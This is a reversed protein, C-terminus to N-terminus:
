ISNVFQIRRGIWRMVPVAMSNGVAKFRRADSAGPIDTYGTDFGQLRECEEVTLRRGFEGGNCLNPINALDNWCKYIGAKITSATRGRTKHCAKSDRGLSEQEFLVAAARRWDGRYGVVFVRRRTQPVGFFKADLVRYALGYGLKEMTGLITGFDEGGNSSMVSPVNEWLLWPPNARKAIRCFHIALKGRADDLGEGRKSTEDGEWTGEAIHRLM